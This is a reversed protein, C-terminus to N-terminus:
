SNLIGTIATVVEEVKVPKTLYKRFGAEIGKEIDRSMANASLAIVPIDRTEELGKLKELATFGDMGPLNIDLIILDPTSSKALEIGLEATHASIMSIGEVREIILEMLQLNAPNDEVYLVTGDVDPQLETGDGSTARDVIGEDVASTEALPLEIWFTSGAGVESDVGIRGGMREILQKTITLGIGTGEIESTEAGLRSFPEFLEELRDDPIGEGTDAVSILLMHGATEHCELSVEGNERNYKVANSMLNLLSQKFRIRDTRIEPAAKFGEGVAIEIGRENAMSGILLLCEDLVTAAYVNEISLEVKGSEIKALDLIENILELLHQGGKMIYDVCSKQAKTLPEKPNFDLMQGFGLIANLPTRLEHSMSSLFGSKAHSAAEAMRGAEILAQEGLKQETIDTAVCVIGRHAGDDDQLASGSLLVPIHRGASSLVTMEVNRVIGIKALDMIGMGMLQHNEEPFILQVPQGPLEGDDYGLLELTAQNAREITGEPTVVILASSMSGVVGEVFDRSVMTEQLRDAMDGFAVVLDGIEDRSVPISSFDFRDQGIRGSAEKLLTVPRSIRRAFFAGVVGALLLAALVAVLAITRNTLLNEKFFQGERQAERLAERRLGSVMGHLFNSRPELESEFYRHHETIGGPQDLFKELLSNSSVVFQDIVKMIARISALDAAERKSRDSGLERVALEALLHAEWDSGARKLELLREGIAHRASKLDAVDADLAAELLLERLNSTIKQVRFAIDSYAAIEKFEVQILEDLGEYVEMDDHLTLLGVISVLFAMSLFGVTLKTRLTAAIGGLPRGAARLDVKKM